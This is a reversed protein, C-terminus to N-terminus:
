ESAACHDYDLDCFCTWNAAVHDNAPLRTEFFQDTNRFVVMDADVFVCMTYGLDDIKFAGLNTFPATLREAVSSSRLMLLGSLPETKLPLHRFNLASYM